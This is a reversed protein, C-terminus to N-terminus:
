TLRRMVKGLFTEGVFSWCKDAVEEISREGDVFVVPLDPFQDFLNDYAVVLKEQISLDDFMEPKQNREQARRVGEKASVRLYFVVDPQRAYHNLEKIWQVSREDNASVSQYAISSYLYRDCVVNVNKCLNFVIESDLHDQRDAAFLLAMTKWDVSDTTFFDRSKNGTLIQRLILGIPGRSPEATCHVALCSQQFRKKLEEAQTTTGSGDIGEFVIFRGERMIM